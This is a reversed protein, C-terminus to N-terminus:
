WLRRAHVGRLYWLQCAPAAKTVGVRAFQFRALDREDSSALAATPYISPCDIRASANSERRLRIEDEIPASIPQSRYM